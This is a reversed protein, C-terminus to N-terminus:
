RQHNTLWIVEEEPKIVCDTAVDQSTSCIVPRPKSRASSDAAV